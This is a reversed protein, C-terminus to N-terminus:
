LYAVLAMAVEAPHGLRHGRWSPRLHGLPTEVLDRHEVAVSAFPATERQHDPRPEGV